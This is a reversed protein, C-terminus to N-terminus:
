QGKTRPIWQGRHIGMVFSLPAPSQHKKKDAGSGATSYVISAGNIQSAMPSM